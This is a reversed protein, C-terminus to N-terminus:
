YFVAPSNGLLVQGVSEYHSDRSQIQQSVTHLDRFRRELAAGSFIADVGAQRYCVDGVELARHIANVCALRLRAREDIGIAGTAPAADYIEVLVQELWAVSSSLHAECQAVKSQVPGSQAMPGLGRPAKRRVLAVLQDLMARALGIAVGAVGVAYLGQMTFAYLPGPERRADPDERTTSYAEEVYLGDLRYGDSATGRLGLVRWNDILEACGARFLLTRVLPRGMQNLRLAGDPDQVNCHVGMWSAHRCGSAFDWEGDVRYGGPVAFARNGNPPGWSVLARDDSFVEAAIEASLFPAILAASNAVFVNWAVSGDHAGLQTIARFYVRPHCEDGGASRPLLMRFLRAQHLSELLAPPLRRRREIEEVQDDIFPGLQAAADLTSQGM